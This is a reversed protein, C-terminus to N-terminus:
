RTFGTSTTWVKSGNTLQVTFSVKHTSSCTAGTTEASLPLQIPSRSPIFSAALCLSAAVQFFGFSRAM